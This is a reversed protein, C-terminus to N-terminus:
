PPAPVPAKSAQGCGAEALVRHILQTLKRAPLPKYAVTIGLSQCRSLVDTSLDGTILVAPVGSWSGGEGVLAALTHLSDNAGLHYDSLLLHPPPMGADCFQQQLVELSGAAHAAYGRLQLLECMAHRIQEDDDVIGIVRGEGQAMLGADAELAAPATAQLWLTFRAGQGLNSVLELRHGLLAVSRKVIALGIGLGDSGRSSDLRVYESFAAEQQEPAIGLGTDQVTVAWEVGQREAWIHVGGHATYKVANSLLNMLMRRLLHADSRVTADVEDIRLTLGKGIAAVTFQTRLDGLLDGLPVAGISPTYRDSELRSLDFLMDLLDSLSTSSRRIADLTARSDDSARAAAVEALMGLAHAPQRLDHCAAAVLRTRSANLANLQGNAATLEGNVRELASALEALRRRQRSQRRLLEAVALLVVVAVCLAAGLVLRRQESFQERAKLEANEKDKAAVQYATEVQKRAAENAKAYRAVTAKRQAKLKEFASKFDGLAEYTRVQSGLVAELMAPTEQVAPLLRDLATLDAMAAPADLAANCASRNMLTELRVVLSYAASYLGSYTSVCERWNKLDHFLGGQLLRLSPGVEFGPKTNAFALWTQLVQLAETPKLVRRLVIAKMAGLNVALYPLDQADVAALRSDIDALLGQAADATNISLIRAIAQPGLFIEERLIPDQTAALAQQALREATAADSEYVRYLARAADVEAKMAPQGVTDATAQAIDLATVLGTMDRNDQRYRVLGLAMSLRAVSPRALAPQTMLATALEKALADAAANSNSSLLQLRYGQARGWAEDDKAARAADAERALRALEAPLDRYAGHRHERMWTAWDVEAGKVQGVLLAAFLLPAVLKTWNM